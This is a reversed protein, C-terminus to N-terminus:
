EIEIVLSVDSSIKQTGAAVPVPASDRMSMAKMAYVPQPSYGGSESITVIKGLTVGAAGAYIKAKRLADKVAEGRAQDLLPEPKDVGFSIGGMQNSGFSVLKDLVSGLTDLKRVTVTVQNRVQYGRIVPNDRTGDPRVPPENYVPYVSFESTQIDDKAIKQAELGKFVASMAKTNAALAEAATKGETVVGSQITAIDPHATVEGTGSVTLVRRQPAEDARAAGTFLAASLACVALAAALSSRRIVIPSVPM